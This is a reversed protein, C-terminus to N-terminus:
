APSGQLEGHRPVLYALEFRRQLRQAFYTHTRASHASRQEKKAAAQQM